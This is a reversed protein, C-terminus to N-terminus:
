KSENLGFGEPGEYEPSIPDLYPHNEYFSDMISEAYKKDLKIIGDGNLVPITIENKSKDYLFNKIIDIDIPITFREDEWSDSDTEYDDNNFIFSVEDSDSFDLEDANNVDYFIPQFRNEKLYKRLDFNDM